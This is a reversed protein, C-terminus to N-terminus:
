HTYDIYVDSYTFMEELNELLESADAKSNSGEYQYYYNTMLLHKYLIHCLANTKLPSSDTVYIM